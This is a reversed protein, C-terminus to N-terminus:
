LRKDGMESGKHPRNDAKIQPQECLFVLCKNATPGGPQILKACICQLTRM